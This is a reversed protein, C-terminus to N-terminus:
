EARDKQGKRKAVTKKLCVQLCFRSSLKGAYRVEYATRDAIVAVASSREKGITKRKIRSSIQRKVYGTTDYRM